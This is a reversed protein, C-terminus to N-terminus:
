LNIECKINYADTDQFKINISELSIKVKNFINIYEYYPLVDKKIFIFFIRVGNDNKIDDVYKKLLLIIEGYSYNTFDLVMTDKLILSRYELLLNMAEEPKNLGM